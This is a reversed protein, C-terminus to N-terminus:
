STRDRSTLWWTALFYFVFPDWLICNTVALDGALFALLVWSLLAMRRRALWTWVCWLWYLLAPVGFDMAISAYSDDSITIGSATHVARVFGGPAGIISYLWNSGLVGLVLALKDGRGGSDAAIRLDSHIEFPTWGSAVVIIAIMAVASFALPALRNKSWFIALFLLASFAMPYRSGSLTVAYLMIAMLLMRITYPIRREVLLAFQGCVLCSAFMSASIMTGAERSSDGNSILVLGKLPDEILQISPFLYSHVIAVAAQIGLCVCLITRLMSAHSSATILLVGSFVFLLVLFRERLVDITEGYVGLHALLSIFWCAALAALLTLSRNGVERVMGPWLTGFCGCLLVAPALTYLNKGGIDIPLIFHAVPLFQYSFLLAVVVCVCLSYTYSRDRPWMQSYLSTEYSASMSV